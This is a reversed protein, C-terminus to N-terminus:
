VSRDLPKLLRTLDPSAVQYGQPPEGGDQYRFLITEDEFLTGRPIASLTKHLVDSLSHGALFLILSSTNTEEDPRHLFISPMATAAENM